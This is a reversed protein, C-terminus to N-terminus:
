VCPYDPTAPTIQASLSASLWLGAGTKLCQFGVSAVTPRLM